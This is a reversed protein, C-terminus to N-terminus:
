WKRTPQWIVKNSKIALARRAIPPWSQSSYHKLQYFSRFFGRFNWSNELAKTTSKQGNKKRFHLKKAVKPKRNRLNQPRYKIMHLLKESSNAGFRYLLLQKSKTEELARNSSLKEWDLPDYQVYKHTENGFPQKFKRPLKIFASKTRNEFCNELIVIRIISGSVDPAWHLASPVKFRDLWICIFCEPVFENSKRKRCLM